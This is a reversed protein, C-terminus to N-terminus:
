WWFNKKYGPHSNAKAEKLKDSHTERAREIAELIDRKLGEDQRGDRVIFGQEVRSLDRSLHREAEAFEEKLIERDITRFASRLYHFDWFYEQITTLPIVLITVLMGMLPEIPDNRLGPLYNDIASQWLQGKEMDSGLKTFMVYAQRRALTESSFHTSYRRLLVATVMESFREKTTFAEEYRKQEMPLLHALEDKLKEAKARSIFYLDSDVEKINLHLHDFTDLLAQICNKVESSLFQGIQAWFLEHESAQLEKENMNPSYRLKRPQIKPVTSAAM